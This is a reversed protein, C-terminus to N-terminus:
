HFTPSVAPVAGNKRTLCLANLPESRGCREVGIAAAL